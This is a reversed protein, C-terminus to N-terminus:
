GLSLEELSTIPETTTKLVALYAAKCENLHKNRAVSDRRSGEYSTRSSNSSNSSKRRPIPPRESM